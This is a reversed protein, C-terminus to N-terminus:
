HHTSVRRRFFHPDRTKATPTPMIRLVGKHPWASAPGWQSGLYYYRASQLPRYPLPPAPTARSPPSRLIPATVGPSVRPERYLMWTPELLVFCCVPGAGPRSNPHCTETAWGRRAFDRNIRGCGAPGISIRPTFKSAESESDRTVTRPGRARPPRRRRNDEFYFSHVSSFQVPAQRRGPGVSAFEM